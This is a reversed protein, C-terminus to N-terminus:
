SRVLFMSNKYTETLAHRFTRHPLPEVDLAVYNVQMALVKSLQDNLLTKLLMRPIGADEFQIPPRKSRLPHSPLSATSCCTFVGTNPKCFLSPLINTLVTGFQELSSNMGLM